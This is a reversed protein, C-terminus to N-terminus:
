GACCSQPRCHRSRSSGPGMQRLGLRGRDREAVVQGRIRAAVWDGAVQDDGIGAKGRQGVVAARRPRMLQQGAARGDVRRVRRDARGGILAARCAGDAGATVDAGHFGAAAHRRHHGRARHHLVREIQRRNLALTSTNWPRRGQGACPRRGRWKEDLGRHLITCDDGRRDTFVLLCDIPAHGHRFRAVCHCFIDCRLALIDVQKAFLIVADTVIVPHRGKEHADDAAGVVPEEDRAGAPQRGAADVGLRREERVVGVVFDGLVVDVGARDGAQKHLAAVRCRAPLGKCAVQRVVRGDLAIEVLVHGAVLQDELLDVM